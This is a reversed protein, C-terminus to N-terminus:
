KPNPKFTITGPKKVEFDAEDPGNLEVPWEARYHYWGIMDYDSALLDNWQYKEKATQFYQYRKYELLTMVRVRAKPPDIKIHVPYGIVPARRQLPQSFQLGHASAYTSISTKLKEFQEDVSHFCEQPTRVAGQAPQPNELNQVCDQITQEISDLSTSWFTENPVTSGFDRRLAAVRIIAELPRAYPDHESLVVNLPVPSFDYFFTRNQEDISFRTEGLFKDDTVIQEKALRTLLKMPDQEASDSSRQPPNAGELRQPIESESTPGADGAVPVSLLVFCLIAAVQSMTVVRLVGTGIPARSLSSKSM